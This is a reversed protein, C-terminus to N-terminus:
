RRLPMPRAPVPDFIQEGGDKTIMGRLTKEDMKLPLARVSGDCIAVHFVDGYYGGLQPVPKDAAYSIDEPKTWPIDRKAEVVMITNSTGDTIRMIATGTRGSFVTQPGTLAFYSANTSSEPDGPDRYVAPMKALVKKNTESDWPENFNYQRFLADQELYPLLAVRWSYPTKGDPGYLVAPPFASEKFSSVYNHMALGIQKMNNMSQARRASGRANGIAPATLTILREADTSDVRATASVQTEKQEVKVTTLLDEVIELAGLALASEKADAIRSAEARGQTAANKALTIVASVTEKVQQAKEASTTSVVARVSLQKDVQLALTGTNAATVLPAIVMLPNDFGIPLQQGLPGRLAEINALVAFDALEVSQWDKYWTAKTASTSGSVITRRISGEDAALVLTKEDARFARRVGQPSQLYKRGAFEQEHGNPFVTKLLTNADQESAFRVVFVPQSPALKGPGADENTLMFVTVQSVKDFTVGFEKVFAEQAQQLGAKLTQMIPAGLLRSPRTAAVAIADRPVWAVSLPEKPGSQDSSQPKGDAQTLTLEPPNASDNSPSQALAVSGGISEPGRLGAAFLGTFLVTSVLALKMGASSASHLLTNDRLMEIRRLFTGHTPLFTRAPWALPRDSQRLAMEALTMLYSRQGGAVSAAAADAALEQELRLRGALWHVLPHYFHLALGTQACVWALFDNRQIHAVEHALVAHCEQETWAKWDPPLFIVPKRWGITAATAVEASERLEVPQKCSLAAQLVDLVGLIRPDNVVQSRRYYSRVAVLGILMRVLGILVLSGFAIGLYLPWRRAERPAAAVPTALANIISSWVNTAKTRIDDKEEQSWVVNDRGFQATGKDEAAAISTARAQRKAAGLQDNQASPTVDTPHTEGILSWRPFPVFALATLFVIGVLGSLTALSGAEPGFRRAVAYCLGAATALLTVQLMCWLLTIGLSNM